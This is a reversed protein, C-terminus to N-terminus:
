NRYTEPFTQLLYFECQLRKPVTADKIITFCEGLQVDLDGKMNPLMVADCSVTDLLDATDIASALKQKYNFNLTKRRSTRTVKTDNIAETENIRQPTYLTRRKLMSRVPTPRKCDVDDTLVNDLLEPTNCKPTKRNLIKEEAGPQMSKHRKMKEYLEPNEYQHYNSIRYSKPDVVVLHRKCAEIWLVSVIPINWNKAKKYTSQLGDKFVVHTTNRFSICRETIQIIRTCIILLQKDIAITDKHQHKEVLFSM